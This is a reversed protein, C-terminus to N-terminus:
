REWINTSNLILLVPSHAISLIISIIAHFMLIDSIHDGKESVV